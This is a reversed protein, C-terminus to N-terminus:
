ERMLTTNQYVFVWFPLIFVGNKDRLDKNNKVQHSREGSVWIIPTKNFGSSTKSYLDMWNNLWAFMAMDVNEISSPSLPFDGNGEIQDNKNTM